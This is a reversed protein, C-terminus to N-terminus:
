GTMAAYRRHNGFDFFSFREIVQVCNDLGRIADHHRSAVQADFNIHGINRDNLFLDNFRTISHLFRHNDGCLHQVAHM